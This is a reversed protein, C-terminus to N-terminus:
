CLMTCRPTYLALKRVLLDDDRAHQAEGLAKTKKLKQEVQRQAKREELKEKMEQTRRAQEKESIKKLHRSHEAKAKDEASLSADEM